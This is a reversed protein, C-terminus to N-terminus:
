ETFGKVSNIDFYYKEFFVTSTEAIESISIDLQGEGPPITHFDSPDRLEGFKMLQPSGPYTLLTSVYLNSKPSSKEGVIIRIETLTAQSKNEISVHLVSTKPEYWATAGLADVVSQPLLRSAKGLCSEKVAYAAAETTVDKVHEIVCDNYSVGQDVAKKKDSQRAENLSILANEVHNFRVNEYAADVAVVVVLSAVAIISRM